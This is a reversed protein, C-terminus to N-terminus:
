LFVDYDDGGFTINWEEEPGGGLLLEQKDSNISTSNLEITNVCINSAVSSGIFLIIIGVILLPLIKRM